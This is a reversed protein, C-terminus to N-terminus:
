TFLGVWVAAGPYINRQGWDSNLSYEGPSFVSPAGPVERSQTMEGSHGSFHGLRDKTSMCLTLTPTTGPAPTISDLDSDGQTMESSPWGVCHASGTKTETENDSLALLLLWM